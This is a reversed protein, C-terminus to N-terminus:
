PSEIEWNLGTQSGVALGVLGGGGGDNANGQFDLVRTNSSDSVRTGKQEGSNRGNSKFREGCRGMWRIIREGSGGKGSVSHLEGLCSCSAESFVESFVETFM